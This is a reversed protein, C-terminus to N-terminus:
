QDYGQQQYQLMMKYEEGALTDRVQNLLNTSSEAFSFGAPLSLGGTNFETHNFTERLHDEDTGHMHKQAGKLFQLIRLADVKQWCARIFTAPTKFNARLPAFPDEEDFIEKLFLQMPTFEPGHMLPGFTDWTQKVLDFLSYHYLPYSTWDGAAGKIMAPGTGFGVRNSFRAAPYVRESCHNILPAYKRLKQLFYFDEGSQRPAIGGIARCAKVRVAMASGLATFAYPNRIRYLNWAYNRMYIEYRLIARDCSEDGTLLHYYPVSLAAAFPAQQLSRTIADLYAPRFTTDADLSVILDEDEAEALVADMLAKRAHGVGGKGRPWGKGKSSRDIVRLGPWSLDHLFELTDANRRCIGAKGAQGHWSEPQNVCIYLEFSRTQAQLCQLTLPLSELEDLAPICVHIRM